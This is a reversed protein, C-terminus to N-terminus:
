LFSAVQPVPLEATPDLTRVGSIARMLGSSLDAPIDVCASADIGVVGPYETLETLTPDAHASRPDTTYVGSLSSAGVSLVKKAKETPPTAGADYFSGAQCANQLMAGFLMQLVRVQASAGRQCTSGYTGKLDQVAAKPLELVAHFKITGGSRQTDFQNAVIADDAVNPSIATYPLSVETLYRIKGKAATEALSRAKLAVTAVFSRADGTAGSNPLKIPCICVLEDDRNSKTVFDLSKREIDTITGQSNAVGTVKTIKM